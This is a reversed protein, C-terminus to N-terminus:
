VQWEVMFKTQDTRPPSFPLVYAVPHFAVVTQAQPGSSWGQTNGANDTARARFEYLSGNQAGTVQASTNTTGIQWDHWDSGDVRAQVDYHKIGSANDTGSWTM